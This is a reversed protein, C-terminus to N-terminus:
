CTVVVKCSLHENLTIESILLVVVHALLPTMCTVQVAEATYTAQFYLLVRIVIAAMLIHHNLRPRCNIAASTFQQDCLILVEIESRFDRLFFDIEASLCM